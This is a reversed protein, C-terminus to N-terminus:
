QRVTVASVEPYDADLVSHTPPVLENDSSDQKCVPAMQQICALGCPGVIPAHVGFRVESSLHPDLEESM